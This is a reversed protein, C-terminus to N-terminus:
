KAIQSLIFCCLELSTKLKNKKLFFDDKFFFPSFDCFSLSTYFSVDFVFNTLFM